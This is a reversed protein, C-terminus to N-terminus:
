KHIVDTKEGGRTLFVKRGKEGMEKKWEIPCAFKVGKTWGLFITTEDITLKGKWEL